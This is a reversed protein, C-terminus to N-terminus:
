SREKNKKHKNAVVINGESDQFRKQDLVRQDILNEASAANHQAINAAFQSINSRGTIITDTAQNFGDFARTLNDYERRQKKTQKTQKLPSGLRRPGCGKPKM